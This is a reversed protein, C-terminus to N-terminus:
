KRWLERTALRAGAALTQLKAWQIQPHVRIASWSQSFGCDTGAIVNERGVYQTYNKLRLAVLEPHEVINTAHTIVGPILMKGDALKVDKWVQWEHEHRPNAAEISYAQARVQLLIDLIDQLPVDTTHPGNWSGWCIHYRVRDEPIGALAHNIAEVCLTAYNRYDKLTLGHALMRDYTAPLEPADIQLLFGANVIAHYEEKLADALAYVYAEDSPYHENRSGYQVMTPAAAPLFAEEVTVGALAAKFNEIDRQVAAQGKYTIPGTCVTRGLAVPASSPSVSPPLWMSRALPDYQAYFTAFDQRDKGVPVPAEGRLPPRREFGTLRDHTYVFFSPKSQEGDSPIDVGVEAQKRVVEAVSRRVHAAFATEDYSQGADRAKMVEIIEPPRILSGAHTTLIRDQSNQM